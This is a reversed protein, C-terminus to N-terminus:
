PRNCARMAAPLSRAVTSSRLKSPMPDTGSATSYRCDPPLAALDHHVESSARELRGAAQTVATGAAAPANHFYCKEEIRECIRWGDRTRVLKDVYWLGVFMVQTRGGPLAMELPNFCATRSTATDGAVEIAFNGLLHQYNPFRQMAERVWAKVEAFSGDVGGTARYDIYADPTFVADWADFDRRDLANAYRTLLQEIELRDAILQLDVM